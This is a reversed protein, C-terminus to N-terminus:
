GSKLGQTHSIIQPHCQRDLGSIAEASRAECHRSPLGRLSSFSPAEGPRFAQLSSPSAESRPFPSPSATMVFLSAECRRFLTLSPRVFPLGRWPSFSFAGGHHCFPPRRLIFPHPSAPVFLLLGRLFSFTYPKSPRLPPRAILFLGRRSSL